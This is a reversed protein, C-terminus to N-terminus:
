FGAKLFRDLVERTEPSNVMAKLQVVHEVFSQPRAPNPQALLSSVEDLAALIEASRPDSGRAQLSAVAARLGDRQEAAQLSRAVMDILHRRLHFRYFLNGPNFFWEFMGVLTETTMAQTTDPVTLLGQLGREELARCLFKLVDLEGLLGADATSGTSLRTHTQAPGDIFAPEQYRFFSFWREVDHAYRYRQDFLGYLTYLARNVCISLGNIYNGYVFQLLRARPAVRVQTAPIWESERLYGFPAVSLTSDPNAAHHREHTLLKDPAFLDDSSLWCIYTGQSHFLCANLASVTGGNPKDILRLRPDAFGRVVDISGDTSGDNCVILEFDGFSQALVSGIAAGVYPAHNYLPMIVTFRPQTM